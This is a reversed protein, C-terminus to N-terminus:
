ANKPQLTTGIWTIVSEIMAPGGNGSFMHDAGEIEILKKPEKITNFIQRSDEIPVIKDEMGHVLLWPVKVLCADEIVSGILELDKKFALSLPFKQNKWMYGSDPIEQGFERDYFAKANFMGALSILRYIRDDRSSVITGVTAGMSHGAYIVRFGLSDAKSLVSKLDQIGKSITAKRFDGGSFGNGSFSFRLVPLGEAAVAQALSAILPLDKNGTVGHGIVLLDRAGNSGEHFTYDIIEGELNTITEQM